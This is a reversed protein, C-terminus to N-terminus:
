QRYVNVGTKLSQLKVVKGMDNVAQLVGSPVEITNSFVEAILLDQVFSDYRHLFLRLM